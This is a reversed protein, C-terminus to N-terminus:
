SFSNVIPWSERINLSSGKKKAFSSSSYIKMYTNWCDSSSGWIFTGTSSNKYFICCKIASKSSNASGYSFLNSKSHRYCTPSFKCSIVLLISFFLLFPSIVLDLKVATKFCNPKSSYFILIRRPSAAMIDTETSLISQPANKCFIHKFIPHYKVINKHLIGNTNPILATM